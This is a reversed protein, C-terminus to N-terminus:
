MDDLLAWCLQEQHFGLLSLVDWVCCSMLGLSINQVSPVVAIIFYFQFIITKNIKPNSNNLKICKTNKLLNVGLTLLDSQKILWVDM